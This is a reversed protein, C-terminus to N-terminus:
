PQLQKLRSNYAITLPEYNISRVITAFSLLGDSGELSSCELVQEELSKPEEKEVQIEPLVKPEPPLSENETMPYQHSLSETKSERHFEECLDKASQLVQKPDDTANLLYSVGIKENVYPALPFVKEYTVKEITPM